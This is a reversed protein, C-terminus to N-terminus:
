LKLKSQFSLDNLAEITQLEVELEEYEVNKKACCTLCRMLIFGINETSQADEVLKELSLNCFTVNKLKEPTQVFVALEVIMRIVLAFYEFNEDNRIVMANNHSVLSTLFRKLCIKALKFKDKYITYVVNNFTEIIYLIKMFNQTCLLEGYQTEDGGIKSNKMLDQILEACVKETDIKIENANTFTDDSSLQEYVEQQFTGSEENESSLEDDSECYSDITLTNNNDDSSSGITIQSHVSIVDPEKNATDINQNIIDQL